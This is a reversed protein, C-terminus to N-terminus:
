RSRSGRCTGSTSFGRSILRTRATSCDGEGRHGTCSTSCDRAELWVYSVRPVLGHLAIGLKGGVRRASGVIREIDLLVSLRVQLHLVESPRAVGLFVAVRRCSCCGTRLRRRAGCSFWAWNWALEAFVSEGKEGHCNSGQLGGAVFSAIVERSRTFINAQPSASM